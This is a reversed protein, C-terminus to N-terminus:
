ILNLECALRLIQPKRRLNRKGYFRYRALEESTCALATEAQEQTLGDLDIAAIADGQKGPLMALNARIVNRVYGRGEAELAAREPDTCDGPLVDHLTICEGECLPEDMSATDRYARGQATRLGLANQIERRIHYMAWNSFAGKEPEWTSAALLVGLHGAQMLDDFDVDRGCFPIYKAAISVILGTHQM